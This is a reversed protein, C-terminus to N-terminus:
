IECSEKKTDKSIKTDKTRSIPLSSGSASRCRCASFSSGCGSARCWRRGGTAPWCPSSPASCGSRRTTASSCTASPRAHLVVRRLSPVLSLPCAAPPRLHSLRPRVSRGDGTRARRCACRRARVRARDRRREFVGSRSVLRRRRRHDLSRRCLADVCLLLRARRARAMATRCDGDAHGCGAHGRDPAAAARWARARSRWFRRQPLVAGVSMLENSIPILWFWGGDHARWSRIDGARRGEARPVGAYHSFVAVNALGPEDVRLDSSADSCRRAAPPM